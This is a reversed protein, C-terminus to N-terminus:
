TEICGRCDDLIQMVAICLKIRLGQSGCDKLHTEKKKYLVCLLLIEKGKVRNM